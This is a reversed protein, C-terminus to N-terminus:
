NKGKLEEVIQRQASLIADQKNVTNKYNFQSISMDGETDKIAKIITCTGNNFYCDYLVRGSRGSRNKLISITARNNVKDEESRTISVVINAIQVKQAAGGNKSMTVLECDTSDKTGQSALLIAVNYKKAIAEIQRMSKAEKLYDGNIGRHQSHDLAEFYDIIVMDPRFGFNIYKKILRELDKVTTEGTDVQKIRLNQIFAEKSPNTELRHNVEDIFEPKSLNRTEVQSIRSFHKRQVQIESDETVFQLIRFGHFNNDECPHVSAYNAIGTTLSTKGFGTPGIILCTEGKGIGGELQDDLAEIGTPIAIRNDPALAKKINDYPSIGLDDHTGQISAQNILEVCRDFQSLDGDKAIALIENAIRVMNQQRFFKSSLERIIDVGDAPTSEVKALIALYYDRDIETYAKERLLIGMTSYSPVNGDKEYYEKMTGVIVRLYNDTFMNQNLIPALEGFFDHEELLTHVLKYQFDEGLYGLSNKGNIEYVAKKDMPM